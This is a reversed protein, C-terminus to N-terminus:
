ARASSLISSIEDDYDDKDKFRLNEIPVKEATLM